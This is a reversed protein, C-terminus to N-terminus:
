NARGMPGLRIGVRAFFGPWVSRDQERQAGVSLEVALRRYLRGVCGARFELMWARARENPWAMGAGVGFQVSVRTSRTTSVGTGGVVWSTVDEQPDGHEERRGGSIWLVEHAAVGFELDVGYSRRGGSAPEGGDPRFVETREPQVGVWPTLYIDSGSRAHAVLPFVTLLVACVTARM